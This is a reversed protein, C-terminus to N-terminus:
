PHLEHHPCTHSLDPHVQRRLDEQSLGKLGGKSLTAQAGVRGGKALLVNQACRWAARHRSSTISAGGGGGDGGGRTVPTCLSERHSIYINYFIYSAHTLHSLYIFFHMRHSLLFSANPLTVSTHLALPSYMRRQTTRSFFFILMLRSAQRRLEYYCYAVIAQLGAAAGLRTLQGDPDATIMGAGVTLIIEYVGYAILLYQRLPSLRNRPSSGTPPHLSSSYM